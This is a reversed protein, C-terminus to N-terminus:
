VKPSGSARRERPDTRSCSRTGPLRSFHLRGFSEGPWPEGSRARSQRVPMWLPKRRYTIASMLAPLAPIARGGLSGLVRLASARVQGDAHGLCECLLAVAEPAGPVLEAVASRTEADRSWLARKLVRLSHQTVPLAAHGRLAARRIGPEREEALRIVRPVLQEGLKRDRAAWVGGLADLAESPHDLRKLLEQVEETGLEGPQVSDQCARLSTPELGFVSAFAVSLAVLHRKRPQRTFWINKMSERIREPVLATECAVRNVQSPLPRM